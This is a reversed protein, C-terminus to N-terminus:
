PQGQAEEMQQARRIAERIRHPDPMDDTVFEPADGATYAEIRGVGFIRNLLSQEVRITRIHRLAMGTRDKRLIGEEFLLDHPTVILRTMKVRIYWYLLLLIGLGFAPILLLCLLFYFPHARFMAPHAVYLAETEM